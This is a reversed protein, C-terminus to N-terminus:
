KRNGLATFAKKPVRKVAVFRARFLEDLTERVEAPLRGLLKDLEPLAAKPADTADDGDETAARSSRKREPTRADTAAVEGRMQAELEEVPPGEEDGSAVSAPMAAAAEDWETASEEGGESIKSPSLNAASASRLLAPASLPLGRPAPASAASAALYALM